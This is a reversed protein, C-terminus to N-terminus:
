EGDTNGLTFTHSILTSWCAKADENTVLASMADHVGADEFRGSVSSYVRFATEILERLTNFMMNDVAHQQDPTLSEWASLMNARLTPIDTTSLHQDFAFTVVDCATVAQKLSAGATGFETEAVRLFYSDRLAEVSPASVPTVTSAPTPVPTPAPTSVPTKGASCASFVLLMILSLSLIVKKM